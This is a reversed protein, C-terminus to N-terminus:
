GDTAEEVPEEASELEGEHRRAEFEAALHEEASGRIRRILCATLFDCDWMCQDTFNWTIHNPNTHSMRLMRHALNNETFRREPPTKRLPILAYNVSRKSAPTRIFCFKFGAARVGFLKSAVLDYDSAQEDIELGKFSFRKKTKFDLVWLRPGDEEIVDLRGHLFGAFWEIEYTSSLHFIPIKFDVETAAFMKLPKKIGDLYSRALELVAIKVQQKPDDEGAAMRLEYHFAIRSKFWALTRNELPTVDLQNHLDAVGDHFIGGIMLRPKSKKAALNRGYKLAWKGVCREFVKLESYSVDVPPRSLDVAVENELELSMGNFSYTNSKVPDSSM